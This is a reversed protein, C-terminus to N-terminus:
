DHRRVANQQVTKEAAVQKKTSQKTRVFDSLHQNIEEKSMRLSAGSSQRSHNGTTSLNAISSESDSRQRPKLQMDNQRQMYSQYVEADKSQNRLAAKQTGKRPLTAYIDLEKNRSSELVTSETPPPPHPMKKKRPQQEDTTTSYGSDSSYQTSYQSGYIQNVYNPPVPQNVYNPAPKGPYMLKKENYMHRINEKLRQQKADGLPVSMQILDSENDTSISSLSCFLFRM